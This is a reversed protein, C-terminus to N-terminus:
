LSWALKSIKKIYAYLFDEVTKIIEQKENEM